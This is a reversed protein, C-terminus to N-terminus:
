KSAKQKAEAYVAEWEEPTMLDRAKLRLEIIQDQFEMRRKDFENLFNDLEERTIDYDSNLKVFQESAKNLDKTLAKVKKDAAKTLTMIQKARDKDHIQNKVGENFIAFSFGAVGNFLIMIATITAVIM